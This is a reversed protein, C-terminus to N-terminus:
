IQDERHEIGAASLVANWLKDLAPVDQLWQEGTSLAGYLRLADDYAKVADVLAEDNTM